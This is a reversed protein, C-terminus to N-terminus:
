GQIAKHNSNFLVRPLQKMLYDARMKNTPCKIIDFTNKDIHEGFWHWKCLFYKTQNTIWHNTALYYAGQNDEFVRAHVTAGELAQCNTQQIIENLIRQLPLYMKLAYSLASYEAELTSQSIHTQLVSKWVVPCGNLLILYGTRSKVSDPNCDDVQGYLGAYDADVFM